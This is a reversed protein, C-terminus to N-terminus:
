AKKGSCTNIGLIPYLPCFRILATLMMVAGVGDAVYNWPSALDGLIGWALLGAGALLRIMRDVGGVNARM